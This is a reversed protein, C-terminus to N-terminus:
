SRAEREQRLVAAVPAVAAPLDDSATTIKQLRERIQLESRTIRALPAVSFRDLSEKRLEKKRAKMLNPLTPYRPDNLGQQTTVVAPLSLTFGESGEDTDHRGTLTDGVLALETTWTLQPWGLREAM